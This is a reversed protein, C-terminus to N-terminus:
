KKLKIIWDSNKNKLNSFTTENKEVTIEEFSSFVENIGERDLFHMAMNQESTESIDLIFTNREIEKGKGFRYDDTTRTFVFARGGKKLVRHLEGVAKQYGSRDNYYFVGFSVVGDFFNDEFPQNEMNANKLVAKLGSSKLRKETVNLGNNSIDTAYVQFGEEALFVTHPGSGCGLDLIRIKGRESLGRPFQSFIFRILHENPYKLQFREKLHLDNWKNEMLKALNNEM